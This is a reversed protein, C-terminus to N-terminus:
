APTFDLINGLRESSRLVKGAITPLIKKGAFYEIGLVPRISFVFASDKYVFSLPSLPIGTKEKKRLLGKPKKFYELNPQLELNFDKLYFELEKKQRRNMLTDKMRAEKLKSAIFSRSYPKVVSSITIVKQNALEDIFNYIGTNTLDQYVEQSLLIIPSCFLMVLFLHRKLVMSKFIM